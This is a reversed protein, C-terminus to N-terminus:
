NYGRILHDEAARDAATSVQKASERAPAATGARVDRDRQQNSM